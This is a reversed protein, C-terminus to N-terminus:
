SGVTGQHAGNGMARDTSVAAHLDQDASRFVVAAGAPITVTAPTLQTTGGPVSPKFMRVVAYQDVIFFPLTASALGGISATLTGSGSSSGIIRASDTGGIPLIALQTSGSSWAIDGGGASAMPNGNADARFANITLTDDPLVDGSLRTAGSTLAVATDQAFTIRTARQQVQLVVTDAASGVQAIIRAIGNRSVTVFGGTIVTAVGPDLSRWTFSFTHPPVEVRNANLGFASLQLPGFAGVDMTDAGQIAVIRVINPNETPGDSSCASSLVIGGIILALPSLVRMCTM